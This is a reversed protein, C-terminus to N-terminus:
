TLYLRCVDWHLSGHILCELCYCTWKPADWRRTRKNCVLSRNWWIHCAQDTCHVSSSTYTWHSCYHRGLKLGEICIMPPCCLSVIWACVNTLSFQPKFNLLSEESVPNVACFLFGLCSGLSSVAICHWKGMSAYVLHWKITITAIQCWKNEWCDSHIQHSVIELQSHLIRLLWLVIRGLRRIENNVEIWPQTVAIETM